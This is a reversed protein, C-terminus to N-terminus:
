YLCSGILAIRGAKASLSSQFITPATSILKHTIEHSIRAVASM